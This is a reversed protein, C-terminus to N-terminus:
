FVRIKGWIWFFDKKYTETSYLHSYGHISIEWGIKQWERVKDWFKLNCPYSLLDSDKNNQIVGLIPKIKHKIFLDELQSMHDLNMNECIDDLMLLLGTNKSIYNSLNSLM